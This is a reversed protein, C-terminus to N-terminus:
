QQIPRLTVATREPLSPQTVADPARLQPACHSTRPIVSNLLVQTRPCRRAADLQPSTPALKIVHTNKVVMCTGSIKLSACLASWIAM